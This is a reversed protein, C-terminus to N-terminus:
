VDQLTSPLHCCSRVPHFVVADLVNHTKRFSAHDSYTLVQHPADQHTRVFGAYVLDLAALICLMHALVRMYNHFAKQEVL